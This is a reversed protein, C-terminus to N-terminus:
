DFGLWWIVADIFKGTHTESLCIYKKLCVSFSFPCTCFYPLAMAWLSFCWGFHFFPSSTLSVPLSFYSLSQGAFDRFVLAVTRTGPLHHICTRAWPSPTSASSQPFHSHWQYIPLISLLLSSLISIPSNTWTETSIHPAPYTVRCNSFCWLGSFTSGSFSFFTPDSPVTVSPFACSHVSTLIPHQNPPPNTM